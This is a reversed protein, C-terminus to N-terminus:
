SRGPAGALQALGGARTDAPGEGPQGAPAEEASKGADGAAGQLAETRVTGRRRFCPARGSASM